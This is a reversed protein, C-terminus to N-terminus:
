GSLLEDALSGSSGARLTLAGALGALAHVQRASAPRAIWNVVQALMPGRHPAAGAQVVVDRVRVERAPWAAAPDAAPEPHALARVGDTGQGDATLRIYPDPCIRWGAQALRTQQKILDSLWGRPFLM